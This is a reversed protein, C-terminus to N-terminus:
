ALGNAIAAHRARIGGTKTFLTSLAKVAASGNAFKDQVGSAIKELVRPVLVLWEPKHKAMDNKFYRISSYVVKCGRSLMWMEFTRETIHWVPLLSVMTEGPMPETEEYPKTPGLRHSM